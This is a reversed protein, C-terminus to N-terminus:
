VLLVLRTGNKLLIKLVYHYIEISNYKLSLLSCFIPFNQKTQNM